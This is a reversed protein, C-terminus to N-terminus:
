FVVCTALLSFLALAVYTRNSWIEEMGAVSCIRRYLVITEQLVHNVDEFRFLKLIHGSIIQRARFLRVIHFRECVIDQSLIFCKYFNTGM